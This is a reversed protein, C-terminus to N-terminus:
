ALKPQLCSQQRPTIIVQLNEAWLRGHHLAGFCNHLLGNLLHLLLGHLLYLLRLLCLLRSLLLRGDLLLCGLLRRLLLLRLLVLLLLSCRFFLLGSCLLHLHRRLFLLVLLLHLCLCIVLLLLSLDDLLSRRLLSFRCLYLFSLVLLPFVIGVLAYIARLLPNVRSVILLEPPTFPESLRRLTALIASPCLLLAHLSVIIASLAFSLLALVLALFALALLAAVVLVSAHGRTARVHRRLLAPAREVSATPSPRHCQFLLMRHVAPPMSQRKQFAARQRLPRAVQM